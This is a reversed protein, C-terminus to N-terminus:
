DTGSGPRRRKNRAAKMSVPSTSRLRKRVKTEEGKWSVNASGTWRTSPRRPRAPAPSREAARSRRSTPSRGFPPGSIRSATPPLNASCGCSSTMRTPGSIAPMRGPTPFRASSRRWRPQPGRSAGSANRRPTVRSPRQRTAGERLPSIFAAPASRATGRASNPATPGRM